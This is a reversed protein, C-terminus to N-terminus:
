TAVPFQRREPGAYSIDKFISGMGRFPGQEINVWFIESPRLFKTIRNSIILRDLAAADVYDYNNNPYQVRFLM